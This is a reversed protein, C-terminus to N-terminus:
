KVFVKKGDIINIGKSPMQQKRGNLDYIPSNIEKNLTISLISSPPGEVINKFDKWGNTSKYKDITGVPVYLTANNFTKESFVTSSSSKGEITFPNDILSIVSTM